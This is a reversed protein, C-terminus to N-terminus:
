KKLSKIFNKLAKESIEGATLGIILHDLCAQCKLEKEFGLVQNYDFNYNESLWLCIKEIMSEDREMLNRIDVIFSNDFVKKDSKLSKQRSLFKM